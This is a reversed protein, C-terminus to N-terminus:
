YGKTRPGSLKTQPPPAPRGKGKNAQAGSTYPRSAPRDGM